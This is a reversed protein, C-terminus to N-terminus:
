RGFIASSSQGIVRDVNSNLKLAAGRADLLILFSVFYYGTEYDLLTPVPWCQQVFAAHM